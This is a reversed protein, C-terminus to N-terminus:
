TGEGSVRINSFALGPGEGALKSSMHTIVEDSWRFADVQQYDLLSNLGKVIWEKVDETCFEYAVVFSLGTHFAGIPRSAWADEWTKCIELALYQCEFQLEYVTRDFPPLLRMLIKNTLIVVSWFCNYATMDRWNSFHYIPRVPSDRESPERESAATGNRLKADMHEGLSRLANKLNRVKHLLAARTPEYPYAYSNPDVPYSADIPQLEDLFEMDDFSGSSFDLSPPTGSLSKHSRGSSDFSLRTTSSLHFVRQDDLEKLENFIGPLEAMYQMLDTNLCDDFGLGTKDFAIERWGPSALFCPKREYM